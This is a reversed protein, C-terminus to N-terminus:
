MLVPYFGRGGEVGKERRPQFQTGVDDESPHRRAGRRPSGLSELKSTAHAAYRGKECRSSPSLPWPPAGGRQKRPFADM